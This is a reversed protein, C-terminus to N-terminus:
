DVRLPKRQSNDISDLGINRNSASATHVARRDNDAEDLFTFCHSELDNLSPHPRFALM